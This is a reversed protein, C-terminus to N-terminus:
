SDQVILGPAVDINSRAKLRNTEAIAISQLFADTGRKRYEALKADLVDNGPKAASTAQVIVFKGDVEYAKEPAKGVTSSEFVDHEINMDSFPAPKARNSISLDKGDKLVLKQQLALGKLDPNSALSKLLSDAAAKAMKRAEQKKWAELVKQKVQDLAPTEIDRYQKISVLVTKEGIDVMQKEDEPFAIVKASLGRLGNDPDKDKDLLGNTSVAALNNEVAFDALSSKGGQWKDFLSRAKDSTYAPAERKRIIAEIEGRVDKLEKPAAPKYGEIKVIHFGYDTQILDAVGGEKVKFAAADFPKPMKGRSMWGLDGGNGKTTIDDSYQLALSEFSEGASAKQHAEEAKGKLAAMEAANANKAYNLQIHRAKIQEETTFQAQHDSYYLEVDDPTVEVLDLFKDPDLVVYDYSVRPPLEYESSHDKYFAELTVQDPDKVEKVYAAPDFEAYSFNFKTEEREVATAAERRSPQAALRLVGLYQQRLADARVRDEFAQSSMGLQRLYSRYAAPDFPHDRGFLSAKILAGLSDDGVVMNLNSAERELLYDNITKDVTQQSLNLNLQQAMQSFNKGFIGRYREELNRKEQNFQDYSILHDDIKIAYNEHSKDLLKVGFGTMTMCVLGILLFGFLSKKYKHMLRLM